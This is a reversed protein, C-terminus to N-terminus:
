SEDPQTGPIEAPQGPPIELPPEPASEPPGEPPIGPPVDPQPVEPPMVPPIEPDGLYHHQELTTQLQMRNDQYQRTRELTIGNSGNHLPQTGAPNWTVAAYRLQLLPLSGGAAAQTLGPLAM